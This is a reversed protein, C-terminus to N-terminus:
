SPLRAVTPTAAPGGRGRRYSRWVALLAAPRIVAPRITAALEQYRHEVRASAQHTATQDLRMDVEVLRVDDVAARRLSSPLRSGHLPDRRHLRGECHLIHVFAGTARQLLADLMTGRPHARM